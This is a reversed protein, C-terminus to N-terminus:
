RTMVPVLSAPDTLSASPFIWGLSCIFFWSNISKIPSYHHLCFVMTMKLFSYVTWKNCHLNYLQFFAFYYLFTHKSISLMYLIIVLTLLHQLFSSSDYLVACKPEQRHKKSSNFLRGEDWAVLQQIDGCECSYYHVTTVSQFSFYDGAASVLLLLQTYWLLALQACLSCSPHPPVKPASHVHNILECMGKIANNTPNESSKQEIQSLSLVTEYKRTHFQLKHPDKTEPPQM